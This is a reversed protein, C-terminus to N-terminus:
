IEICPERKKVKRRLLGWFTFLHRILKRHFFEHKYIQPIIIKLASIQLYYLNTQCSRGRPMPQFSSNPHNWQFSKRSFWNTPHSTQQLFSDPLISSIHLQPQMNIFITLLKKANESYRCELLSLVTTIWKDFAASQYISQCIRIQITLYTLMILLKWDNSNCSFFCSHIPKSQFTRKSEFSTPQSRRWFLSAPLTSFCIDIEVLLRTM